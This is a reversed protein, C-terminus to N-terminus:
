VALVDNVLYQKGGLKLNTIREISVSRFQTQMNGSGQFQGKANRGMNPDSVFEHVTILNHDRDNFKKGQGTTGKRVGLRGTMRRPANNTRKNFTVSFLKGKTARILTAAAQTTIIQM